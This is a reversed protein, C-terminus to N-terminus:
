DSDPLRIKIPALEKQLPMIIPLPQMLYKERHLAKIHDKIRILRLQQVETLEYTIYTAEVDLERAYREAQEKGAKVGSPTGPKFEVIGVNSAFDPKQLKGSVGLAEFRTNWHPLYEEFWGKVALDVDYGIISDPLRGGGPANKGVKGAWLGSLEANTMAEMRDLSGDISNRIVDVLGIFPRRPPAIDSAAAVNDNDARFNDNAPTEDIPAGAVKSPQGDAAADDSRHTLLRREEAELLPPGREPAATVHRANRMAKVALLLGEGLVGLGLDEVAHKFRNLAANDGPKTALVEAIPNALAPQEQMLNALGPDDPGMTLFASLGGAGLMSLKGTGGLGPVRRTLALGTLFSATSRILSSTVTDGHEIAKFGEAFQKFEPSNMEPNSTDPNGLLTSFRLDAVNRNLWGSLEDVALLTNGIGDSVGAFLQKPGEVFIGKGIDWVVPVASGGWYEAGAPPLGPNVLADIMTRPAAGPSSSNPRENRLSGARRLYLDLAEASIGDYVEVAGSHGAEDVRQQAEASTMTPLASGRIRPVFLAGLPPVVDHVGDSEPVPIAEVSTQFVM